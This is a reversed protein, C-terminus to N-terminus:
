LGIDFRPSALFRLGYVYLVLGSKIASTTLHALVREWPTRSGRVKLKQRRCRQCASQVRSRRKARTPGEYGYQTWEADM